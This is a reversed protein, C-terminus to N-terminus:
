LIEACLTIGIFLGGILGLTRGILIANLDEDLLLPDRRSHLVTRLLLPRTLLIFAAVVIPAVAQAVVNDYRGSPIGFYRLIVVVVATVIAGALAGGILKDTSHTDMRQNGDMTRQQAAKRGTTHPPGKERIM